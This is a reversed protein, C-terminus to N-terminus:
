KIYKFRNYNDTLYKLTDSNKDVIDYVFYIGFVNNIQMVQM